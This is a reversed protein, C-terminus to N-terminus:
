TSRGEKLIEEAEKVVQGNDFFSRQAGRIADRAPSYQHHKEVIDRMALHVYKQTTAINRHRM